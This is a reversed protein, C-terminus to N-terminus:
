NEQTYRPILNPTQYKRHLFTLSLMETVADYNGKLIESRYPYYADTVSKVAYDHEHGQELLAEICQVQLEIFDHITIM